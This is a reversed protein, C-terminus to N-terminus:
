SIQKNNRQKLWNLLLHIGYATNGVPNSRFDVIYLKDDFNIKQYRSAHQSRSKHSPEVYCNELLERLAEEIVLILETCLEDDIKLQEAATLIEKKIAFRFLYSYLYEFLFVPYSYEEDKFLIRKIM